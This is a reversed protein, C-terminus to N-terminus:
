SSNPIASKVDAGKVDVRALKRPNKHKFFSDYNQLILAVDKEM